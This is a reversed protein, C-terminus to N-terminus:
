RPTTAGASFQLSQKLVAMAEERDDFHLTRDGVIQYREHGKGAILVIDGAMAESLAIHIAKRRDPEVIYFPREDGSPRDVANSATDASGDIGKVIDEIISLPAESRPNDSTVVALDSLNVAIAGMLPRKRRDRDGGCGFVCILRGKKLAKLAKLVNELADPTHAYDVFIFRGSPDKVPELRGPAAAAREIGSAIIKTPIGLAVAVGAACLMNELNHRGVMESAFAVPGATTSLSARIGRLDSRHRVLHVDCDPDHGFSLKPGTLTGFLERGRADDRNIVAAASQAKPGNRLLDTFLRKKAAWYREMDGHFDLHDQTLNTFAAVDFRTQALRDLAIGHSAAELIAHTCGVTQMRSLHRQIDLSEPTTRVSDEVIGPYRINVTGIVGTRHGAASLISEILYTVTTKGNTGTIGIVTLGDSPHNYFAAALDALARRSDSVRVVTAPVDVPTEAVVAVAGRRVADGAFDHGDATLGRIAVFLGGPTIDQSRYCISLIEPDGGSVPIREMVPSDNSELTLSALLSSLKV